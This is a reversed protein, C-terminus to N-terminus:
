ARERVRELAIGLGDVVLAGAGSMEVRVGAPTEIVWRAEEPSRPASSMALPVFTLEARSAPRTPSTAHSRLRWRWWTLSRKSLQHKDAFTDASQGSRKWREIIKRWETASRRRAQPKPHKNM